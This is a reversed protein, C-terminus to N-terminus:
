WFNSDLSLILTSKLIGRRRLNKETSSCFLQNAAESLLISLEFYHADGDVKLLKQSSHFAQSAIYRAAVPDAKLIIREPKGKYATIGVANQFYLAANFDSPIESPEELLQLESM